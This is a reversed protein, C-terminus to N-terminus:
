FPIDDDPRTVTLHRVKLPSGTVEDVVDLRHFEVPHMYVIERHCNDSDLVIALNVGGYQVIGRFDGSWHGTVMVMHGEDAPTLWNHNDIDKQSLKRQPM